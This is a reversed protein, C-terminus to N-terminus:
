QMISTSRECGESVVDFEVGLIVMRPQKPRSNNLVACCRMGCLLM